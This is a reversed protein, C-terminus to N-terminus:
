KLGLNRKAEDIDIRANYGHKKMMVNEEQM